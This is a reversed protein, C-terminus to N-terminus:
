ATNLRRSDIPLEVFFTTGQGQTSELRVKGGHADTIGQVLTLGLGWGKKTSAQAATTRRFPDFISVQEESSLPTGENHVSVIVRDAQQILAVTIPRDPIGYKIGNIALNEVIRKVGDCSWYGNLSDPLNLQFRKGYVSTLEDIVERITRVLDCYVIEVPLVEGARIRSVDLLDTIMSDVRDINHEIRHAAAMHKQCEDPQRQIMQASTRAATLPNRLDHSLTLVFRERLEREETLQAITKRLEMEAARTRLVTRVTAVLLSSEIPLILYADAGYELGKVRETNHTRHATLHIISISSTLPASKIRECVEFGDIDPLKVDLLILDPSKQALELTAQGSSAEWVKFGAATLIRTVLYRTHENDNVNLITPQYQHDHSPM